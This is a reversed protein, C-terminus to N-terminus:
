IPSSVLNPFLLPRINQDKQSRMHSGSIGSGSEPKPNSFPEEFSVFFCGFLFLGFLIWFVVFLLAMDISRVAHIGIQCIHEITALVLRLAISAGNGIFMSEVIALRMM